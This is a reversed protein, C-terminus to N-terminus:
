TRVHNVGSSLPNMVSRKQRGLRATSNLVAELLSPNRPSTVIIATRLSNNKRVRYARYDPSYPYSGPGHFSLM